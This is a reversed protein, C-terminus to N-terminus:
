RWEKNTYGRFSQWKWRYTYTDLTSNYSYTGEPNDDNKVNRMIVTNGYCGIMWRCNNYWDFLQKLDSASLRLYDNNGDNYLYIMGKGTQQSDADYGIYANKGSYISSKIRLSKNFTAINEVNFGKNAKIKIEDSIDIRGGLNSYLTISHRNINNIEPTIQIYSNNNKLITTQNNCDFELKMKDANFRSITGIGANIEIFHSADSKLMVKNSNIDLGVNNKGVQLQITPNNNNNSASIRYHGGDANESDALSISAANKAGRAPVSSVVYSSSKLWAYGDNTINYNVKSIGNTDKSIISVSDIEINLQNKNTLNIKSNGSNTQIEIGTNHGIKIFSTKDPISNIDNSSSQSAALEIFRNNGATRISINGNDDQGQTIYTTNISSSDTTETFIKMIPSYNNSRTQVRIEQGYLNPVKGFGYIKGTRSYTKKDQRGSSFFRGNEDIGIRIFDKWYLSDIFDDSSTPLSIWSYVNNVKNGSNFDNISLSDKFWSNINNKDLTKIYKYYIDNSYSIDIYSYQSQSNNISNVWDYYEKFLMLKQILKNDKQEWYTKAYPIGQLSVTNINEEVCLKSNDTPIFILLDGFSIKELNLSWIAKEKNYNNNNKWAGWDIGYINKDEMTIINSNTLRYKVITETNETVTNQVTNNDGSVVEQEEETITGTEPDVTVIVISEITGATNEDSSGAINTTDYELIETTCYGEPYFSIYWPNSASPAYDLDKYGPISDLETETMTFFKSGWNYTQGSIITRGAGLIENRRWLIFDYTLNNTNPIVAHPSENQTQSGSVIFQIRYKSNNAQVQYTGSVRSTSGNSTTFSRVGSTLDTIEFTGYSPIPPMKYSSVISNQIECSCDADIAYNEIYIKMKLYYTSNINLIKHNFSSLEIDINNQNNWINIINSTLLAKDITDAQNSVIYFQIYNNAFNNLNLGVLERHLTCDVIKMRHIKYNTNNQIQGIYVDKEISDEVNKNYKFITSFKENSSIQETISQWGSGNSFGTVENSWVLNNPNYTIIGTESDISFVPDSATKKFNNVTLADSLLISNDYINSSTIWSNAKEFGSVKEQRYYPKYNGNSDMALRYVYYEAGVGLQINGDTNQNAIYSKVITMAENSDSSKYGFLLDEIDEDGFGATHQIISFLSKNSPDMRLELSDGPNINNYEDKYDIDNVNDDKDKYVEGKVHIYPQDSSLIIGHKDHPVMLKYNLSPNRADKDIRREYSGDIINYLFRNGIKWNGIKSVGGPVLEIRGENTGEETNTDDEPLGFCAKGTESDIFVSQRGNSYGMLGVKGAKRSGSSNVRNGIVGMVMGTFTNTTDDKIGAGVQPTMIHDEGIEVSTGDWGNLSALEYTNLTMVIPIYVTAVVKNANGDKVFVEGVVNNNMYLGNFTENPIVYVQNLLNPNQGNLISNWANLTESEEAVRYKKVDLYLKQYYKYLTRINDFVAAIEENASTISEYINQGIIQRGEQNSNDWDNYIFNYRDKMLEYLNISQNNNSYIFEGNFCSQTEEVLSDIYAMLIKSYEVLIPHLKIANEGLSTVYDNYCKDLGGDSDNLLTLFQSNFIDERDPMDAADDNSRNDYAQQYTNILQQIDDIGISSLTSLRDETIVNPWESRWISQINDYIKTSEKNIDKCHNYEEEMQQFLNYYEQYVSKIYVNEKDPVNNGDNFAALRNWLASLKSQTSLLTDVGIKEIDALFDKIYSKIIASANDRCIEGTDRTILITSQINGIESNVNLEKSGVKSKPSAALWLNPNEYKGNRVPGSEVRWNIYGTEDWDPLEVHAGQAEDYVPNTGNSDYLISKLTGNRMVKIPHDGYTYNNQYEIAPIGYFSYFYKGNLNIEAEVIRSDLENASGDYQITCANNDNIVKYNRSKNGSVGAISWKTTYGLVKTNNTYLNAELVSDNGTDGNNYVMEGNQPKIITLCEDKPVNIPEDIKVVTDTGNTGIEGIKTFLLNSTQRYETGDVHTVIVTVQNDNCTNDYTDKITLPFINGSFYKKGTEPDTELGISPINILTKGEPMIWRVKKPTVEAGQPSHFVAVLDLVDIPNQKRQSNPAIGAEDYQFVQTGNTISVYYNTNVVDKSNQLVISGYGIYIGARYVSCSYTVFANTNKLKCNLKPGHIGEPYSINKLQAIRTAYYSLVQTITRGASSVDNTVCEDLEKQKDKELQAASTDLLISGFEADEKTWIFSFAEDPYNDQYNSSKGNILCSLTPNGENFQFSTGQDSDITIDLKNNNNYLSITTKLIIDSEYVGVCIYINEAASLDSPALILENTNQIDFYRYGSGLKANYDESISTISPDKVGWYFITDKTVDQNLYTMAANIKLDDRQGLKITNGKPATLKLKYGSNSASIENLAVIEIGDIYIYNDENVDNSQDVFGESFAVISDIYLYNKGDFNSITYQSTYDYFKEPNGTMKSTDLVYAVLKPPYTIKGNEDTQPNTEDAFAVNVIIGYHGINENDLSAKFKARILLAEAQKASNSFTEEDINVSPYEVTNYHDKPLSSVSEPNRLYCYYFDSVSHSNLKLPQMRTVNPRGYENEIVANNGIMVFDNLLSSTLTKSSPADEDNKVKGIIFKKQSMDGEPVLIYIQEGIQYIDTSGSQVYAYFDGNNYTVLYKGESTSVIKKVVAKITKDSFVEEASRDAIISIAELLSKTLDVM